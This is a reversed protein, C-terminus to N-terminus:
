RNYPRKGTRFVHLKKKIFRIPMIRRHKCDYQFLAVIVKDRLVQIKKTLSKLKYFHITKRPSAKFCVVEGTLKTHIQKRSLLLNLFTQGDLIIMAWPIRRLFFLTISNISGAKEVHLLSHCWSQWTLMEKPVCNADVM